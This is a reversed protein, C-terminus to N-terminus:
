NIIFYTNYFIQVYRYVKRLPSINEKDMRLGQKNIPWRTSQRYPKKKICLGLDPNQSFKSLYCKNQTKKDM